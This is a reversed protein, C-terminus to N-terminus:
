NKLLCDTRNVIFPFNRHKLTILCQIHTFQFFITRSQCSVLQKVKTISDILRKRKDDVLLEFHETEKTVKPSANLQKGNSLQMTSSVLSSIIGVYDNRHKPKQKLKTHKWLKTSAKINCLMENASIVTNASPGDSQNNVNDALISLTDLNHSSVSMIATITSPLRQFWLSKLPDDSVKISSLQHM